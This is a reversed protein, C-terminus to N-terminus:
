KKWSKNLNCLNAIPRLMEMTEPPFQKPTPTITERKYSKPWHGALLGSNVVDAFPISLYPAFQKIIKAPIDGPATSKNTKINELYKRMQYPKFQPVSSPSFPPIEIKDRNVPNYENSIASFSNAIAEAQDQETMHSIEEVQVSETKQQGYNSIRKLKSYWQADGATMVDDIMKSKFKRKAIAVKQDYLKKIRKYKKSRRNKSFERRRKRDLRKLQETYWPRDDSSIRRTKEPCCEDLKNMVLNHLVEAKEDISGSETVQTWEQETIWAKFKDLGSRPLPRVKIESFTRGPKNNLTDVPKM